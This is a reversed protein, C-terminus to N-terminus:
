KVRSTCVVDSDCDHCQDAAVVDVSTHSPNSCDSISSVTSRHGVRKRAQTRALPPCKLCVKHSKIQKEM